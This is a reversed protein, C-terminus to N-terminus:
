NAPKTFKSDEIPVNHKVETVKIVFTLSSSEQRSEFPVIVGDVTRFDSDYSSVPLTAEPSEQTSDQRVVYFTKKDFYMTVPKEDGKTFKVVYTDSDGVKESGTIEAKTFYTKWNALANQDAERKAIALQTGSKERLGTFPNKGWGIQGDFGEQIEGIGSLNATSYIKNPWKVYVELTGNIGQSPVSITGKVVRTKIKDAAAKPSTAAVSKKIIEDVSMDGATNKAPTQAQVSGIMMSILLATIILNYQKKM